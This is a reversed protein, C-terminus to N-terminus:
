SQSQSALVRRLMPNRSRFFSIRSTVCTAAAGLADYGYAEYMSAPMFLTLFKDLTGFLPYKHQVHLIDRELLYRRIIYEKLVDVSFPLRSLCESVAWAARRSMDVLEGDVELAAHFPQPQDNIVRILSHFHPYEIINARIQAETFGEIPLILGLTDDYTIGEIPEYMVAPRTRIVRNPFLKMRDSDTLRTADTTITIEAQTTPIEPLSTYITFVEGDVMAQLWPKSVDFQPFTSAGLYLHSKPTPEVAAVVPRQPAPVPEVAVTAPPQDFSDTEEVDWTVEDYTVYMDGLAAKAEVLDCWDSENVTMPAQPSWVGTIDGGSVICYSVANIVRLISIKYSKTNKFRQIVATVITSHIDSLKGRVAPPYPLQAVLQTFYLRRM